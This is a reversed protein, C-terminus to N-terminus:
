ADRVAVIMLSGGFPLNLGAGIAAREIALATSFIADLWRPYDRVDSEADGREVLRHLLMLPFLLTNWYSARVVRFGHASVLARAEGRTFRRANHVRRDHASLMWSYAPLNFVAIAGPGLCRHAEKLARAPDVNAHCLVDLSVYAALVGDRLPLENVSGSVVPRAAKTRAMAAAVPDYELGIAPRGAVDPGLLRLMGGTGCGADLVSGAAGSRALSRALQGSVLRRLGRYWWMRDEVAHMLEYEAREM